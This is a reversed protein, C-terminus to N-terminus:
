RVIKKVVGLLQTDINHYDRFPLFHADCFVFNPIIDLPKSIDCNVDGRFSDIGCGVDLIM